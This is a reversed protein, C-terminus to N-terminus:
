DDDERRRGLQELADANGRSVAKRGIYHRQTMTIQAHGLHDAIERATRGSADLRTAVTKRLVHSTVWGFGARDRAARFSRATNSPDRYGGGVRNVIQRGHTTSAPFIPRRLPVPRRRACDPTQV